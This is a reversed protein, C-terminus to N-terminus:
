TSALIGGAMNCVLWARVLRVEAVKPGQAQRQGPGGPDLIVGNATLDADGRGGDSFHLLVSRGAPIV